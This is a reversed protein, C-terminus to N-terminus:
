LRALSQTICDDCLFYLAKLLESYRLKGAKVQKCCSCKSRVTM